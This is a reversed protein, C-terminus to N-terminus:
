RRASLEDALGDRFTPYALEVGLQARSWAASIRRNGGRASAPGSERVPPDIGLGAAVWRVLERRRVPEADSAHYVTGGRGRDLAAVVSRVADELHCFNMWRDDGPGLALRGSRVRDIVGFRGPGYLGSLRVVSARLGRGDPESVVQREAQELIRGTEGVPSVPTREDVEEGVDEGFVGTSGTYVFGGTGDRAAHELLPRVGRLYAREYAEVGPAGPALCAVIGDLGRPLRREVGPETLDILLPEIGLRELESRASPSRRIGVVRDGRELLRRGVAKGLWGCGAILVQM